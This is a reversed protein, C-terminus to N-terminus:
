LSAASMDNLRRGFVIPVPEGLLVARQDTDLQSQGVAATQELPPAILGTQYPLLSLPDSIRITM